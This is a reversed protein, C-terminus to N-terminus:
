LDTKKDDMSLAAVICENVLPLRLCELCQKSSVTEQPELGAKYFGGWAQTFGM